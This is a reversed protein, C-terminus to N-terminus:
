HMELVRNDEKADRGNRRMGAITGKRFGCGGSLRPLPFADEHGSAAERQSGVASRRCWSRATLSSGRAPLSHARNSRPPDSSTSSDSLPDHSVVV